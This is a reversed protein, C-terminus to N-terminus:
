VGPIQSLASTITDACGQCTMGEISFERSTSTGTGGAAEQLESRKSETKGEGGLGVLRFSFGGVLFAFIGVVVYSAGKPM